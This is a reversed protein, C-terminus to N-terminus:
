AHEHILMVGVGLLILVSALVLGEYKELSPFSVREMGRMTLWTFVVMGALTGVALVVSLVGFAVWGHPWATLYIPLFGECPSFTLMAVLSLVPVADAAKLGLGSDHGHDDHGAHDVEHDGHDHDSHSHSHAHESEGGAASPQGGVSESHSHGGGVTQEGGEESKQGGVEPHRHGFLHMHSHGGGRFHRVAYYLGFAILIGGAIPGSWAEVYHSVAMGLSVILLGLITTMLVHGGGAVLVVWLTKSESWNQARGALVFPLWHNPLIAHLFSVALGAGAMSMLVDM